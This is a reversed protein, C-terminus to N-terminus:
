VIYVCTQGASFSTFSLNWVSVSCTIASSVLLFAAFFLASTQLDELLGDQM